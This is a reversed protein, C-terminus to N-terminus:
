DGIGVQEVQMSVNGPIFMLELVDSHRRHVRSLRSGLSYKEELLMYGPATGVSNCTLSYLLGIRWVKIHMFNLAPVGVQLLSFTFQVSRHIEQALYCSYKQM